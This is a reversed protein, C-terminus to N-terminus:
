DIRMYDPMWGRHATQLESVSIPATNGLTLEMGGIKGMSQASVCASQAAQLITDANDAPVSLIYRGQDEGFGYAHLPTNGPDLDVTLGM